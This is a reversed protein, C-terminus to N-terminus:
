ATAKIQNIINREIDENVKDVTKVLCIIGDILPWIGFTIWGVLLMGVGLGIHGLYFRHAGFVGLFFWLIFTIVKTKKKMDFESALITMQEQTLGQKLSLNSSM